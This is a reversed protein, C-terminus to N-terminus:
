AADAFTGYISVVRVGAQRLPRTREWMQAEFTDSSLLVADLNMSLAQAMSVINREAIQAGILGPNEDIVAVWNLGEDRLTRAIRRTHKGAGFVAIKANPTSALHRAVERVRGGRASSEEVTVPNARLRALASNHLWLGDLCSTQLEPGQHSLQHIQHLTYGAGRLLTDIETFTSAGDYEQILQAECVIGTIGQALLNKAGRLVDLELGQVDIKLIDIKKIGAAAAWADLTTIEVNVTSQTDYWDGYLNKGVQSPALVSSCWRNKTVHMPIHGVRNGVAAPITRVSNIHGVQERLVAYVDPVPEFAHITSNPFEELIRKVTVGHHAGLDVITLPSSADVSRTLMAYADYGLESM